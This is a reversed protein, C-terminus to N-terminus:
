GHAVPLVRNRRCIPISVRHSLRKAGCMTARPAIEATSSAFAPRDRRDNWVLLGNDRADFVIETTGEAHDASRIREDALM